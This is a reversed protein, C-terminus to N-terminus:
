DTKMHGELAERAHIKLQRTGDALGKSVHLGVGDVMKGVQQGVGDVVKGVHDGTVLIAKDLRNQFGGGELLGGIGEAVIGAAENLTSQAEALHTQLPPLARPPGLETRVSTVLTKDGEAVKEGLPYWGVRKYQRAGGHILTNHVNDSAILLTKLSKRVDYPDWIFNHVTLFAKFVVLFLLAIGILQATVISARLVVRFSWLALARVPKTLAYLFNVIPIIYRLALFVLAFHVSTTLLLTKWGGGNELAGLRIATMLLQVFSLFWFALSFRLMNGINEADSFMVKGCALLTALASCIAFLSRDITCFANFIAYAFSVELLPSAPRPTQATFILAMNGITSSVIYKIFQYCFRWFGFDKQMDVYGSPHNWAWSFQGWAHYWYYAGWSPFYRCRLVFLLLGPIFYWLRLPPLDGTDYLRWFFAAVQRLEVLALEIRAFHTALAQRAIQGFSELVAVIYQVCHGNIITPLIRVLEKLPAEQVEQPVHNSLTLFPEDRLVLPENKDHILLSYKMHLQALPNVISKRVFENNVQFLDYTSQAAVIHEAKVQHLRRVQEFNETSVRTLGMTPNPCPRIDIAIHTTRPYFGRYRTTTPSMVTEDVRPDRWEFCHLVFKASAYEPDNDQCIFPEMLDRGPPLSEWYPYLASEEFLQALYVLPHLPSYSSGGATALLASYIPDVAFRLAVLRLNRGAETMLKPSGYPRPLSPNIELYEDVRVKRVASKEGLIRTRTNSLKDAAERRLLAISIDATPFSRAKETKQRQHELRSSPSDFQFKKLTCLDKAPQLLSEQARQLALVYERDSFHGPVARLPRSIFDMLAELYLLSDHVAGGIMQDFATQLAYSASWEPDETLSAKLQRKREAAEEVTSFNLKSKDLHYAWFNWAYQVLPVDWEAFSNAHVFTTFRCVTMCIQSLDRHAKELPFKFKGAETHQPIAVGRTLAKLYSPHKFQLTGDSCIDVISSVYNRIDSEAVAIREECHKRDFLSIFDADRPKETDLLEQILWAIKVDASTVPTASAAIFELCLLIRRLIRSSGGLGLRGFTKDYSDLLDGQIDDLEPEVDQADEVYQLHEFASNVWQFSGQARSHLSDMIKQRKERLVPKRQFLADGRDETFRQIDGATYHTIDIPSQVHFHEHLSKVLHPTEQGSILFRINSESQLTSLWQLFVSPNDDKSLMMDELNDIVVSLVHLRCLNGKRILFM